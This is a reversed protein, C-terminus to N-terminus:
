RDPARVGHMRNCRDLNLIRKKREVDLTRVVDQAGGALETDGNDRVRREATAEECALVYAYEVRCM